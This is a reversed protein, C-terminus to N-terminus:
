ERTYILGLRPSLAKWMEHSADRLVRVAKRSKAGFRKKAEEHAATVRADAATVEGGHNAWLARTFDGSEPRLSYRHKPGAIRTEAVGLICASKFDGLNPASDSPHNHTVVSGALKGKDKPNWRAQYPKGAVPEMSAVVEGDHNFAFGKEFKLARIKQEVGRVNARAEPKMNAVGSRCTKDPDICTGKCRKGNKCKKALSIALDLCEEILELALATAEAHSLAPM